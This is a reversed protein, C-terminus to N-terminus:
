RCQRRGSAAGGGGGGGPIARLSGRLSRAAPRLLLGPSRPVCDAARPGAAATRGTAVATQAVGDQGDHGCGSRHGRVWRRSRMRRRRARRRRKRTGRLGPSPRSRKKAHAARAQLRSKRPHPFVSGPMLGRNPAGCLMHEENTWLSFCGGQNTWSLPPGAGRSRHLDAAGAGGSTGRWPRPSCRAAAARRSHWPRPLLANRPPCSNLM